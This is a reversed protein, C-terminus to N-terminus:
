MYGVDESLKAREHALEADTKESEAVLDAVRRAFEKEQLKFLDIIAKDQTVQWNRMLKMHRVNLIAQALIFGVTLFQCAVMVLEASM